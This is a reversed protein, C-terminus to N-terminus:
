FNHFKRFLLVSAKSFIVTPFTKILVAPLLKHQEVYKNDEM